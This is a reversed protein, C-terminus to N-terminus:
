FHYLHWKSPHAFIVEFLHPLRLWHEQSENDVRYIVRVSFQITAELRSVFHIDISDTEGPILHVFGNKFRMFNTLLITGNPQGAYFAQYQNNNSNDIPSTYMWVNLTQPVPSVQQIVLDIQEITMGFRDRQLNQLGLILHYLLTSNHGDPPLVAISEPLNNLTYHTPDGPIVYSTSQIAKFYMELRDDYVDDAHLLPITKSILQPAPCIWSPCWTPRINVLVLICILFFSCMYSLGNIFGLPRFPKSQPQSAQPRSGKRESKGGVRFVRVSYLTLIISIGGFLFWNRSAFILIPSSNPTSYLGILIYIITNITNAILGPVYKRRLTKAVGYEWDRLRYFYPTCGELWHHIQQYTRSFCSSPKAPPGLTVLTPKNSRRSPHKYRNKKSTDKHSKNMDLKM